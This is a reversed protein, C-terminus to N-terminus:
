IRHEIFYQDIEPFLKQWNTNRRHDIMNLTDRLKALRAPNQQAVNMLKCIGDLRTRANNDWETTVPYQSLLTDLKHKFFTAGFISPHYIEDM